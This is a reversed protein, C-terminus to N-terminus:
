KGGKWNGITAVYFIIAAISYIIIGVTDNPHKWYWYISNITFLIRCIIDM